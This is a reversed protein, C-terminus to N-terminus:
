FAGPCSSPFTVAFPNTFFEEQINKIKKDRLQSHHAVPNPIEDEDRGDRVDM